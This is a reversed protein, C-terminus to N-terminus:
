NQYGCKEPLITSTWVLTYKNRWGVIVYSSFYECTDKIHLDSAITYVTFWFHLFRVNITNDLVSFPYFYYISFLQSKQKARLMLTM